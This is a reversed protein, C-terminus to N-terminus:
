APQAPALLPLKDKLAQAYRRSLRIERGDSMQLDYDGNMRSKMETICRVNAITSRHVRVFVSPDLSEELHRLTSTQLYVNGKTHVAVYPSDAHISVIDGAPVPIRKRGAQLM